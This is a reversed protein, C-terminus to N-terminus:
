VSGARGLIDDVFLRSRDPIMTDTFYRGVIEWVAEATSINLHQLLIVADDADRVPRTALVKMALLHEAPTAMVQLHPHDFVTLGEGPKRAAYAAAQNNLWTSPWQKERAIERVADVVPGDPAFIADIDRTITRHDDIVGTRHGDLNM